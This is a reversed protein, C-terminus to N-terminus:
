DLCPSVPLARSEHPVTTSRESEFFFSLLFFEGATSQGDLANLLRHEHQKLKLVEAPRLRMGIATQITFGIEGAQTRAETLSTPSTIQAFEVTEPASALPFFESAM